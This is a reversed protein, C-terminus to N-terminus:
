RNGCQERQQNVIWDLGPIPMREVKWLTSWASIYLTTGDDDGFSCNTVASSPIPILGVSSGDPRLVQLGSSVGVYLNGAADLCLSDPGSLGSALTAGNSLSGDDAVDYKMVSSAFDADVYLTKEDPSLEIGNPGLLMARSVLMDGGPAL